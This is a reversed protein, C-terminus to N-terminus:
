LYKSLLSGIVAKDYSSSEPVRILPLGTSEFLHNKFDDSDNKVRHIPDDLEIAFLPNYFKKNCVLFDVHKPFIKMLYKRRSNRLPIYFIDALRVYVFVVYKDTDLVDILLSYFLSEGRSMLYKKVAYRTYDFNSASRSSRFLDPYKYYFLLVLLLLFFLITFLVLM